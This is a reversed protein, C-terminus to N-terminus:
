GLVPKLTDPFARQPIGDLGRRYGEGDKVVEVLAGEDLKHPEHIVDGKCVLLDARRGAEIVGTDDQGIESAALGSAGFWATLPDLGDIVLNVIEMYNRGHMGPLVPDTGALIKLGGRHAAMVAETHVEATQLAKEMVADILGETSPLKRIVWSTPTVTCGKAAAKEVLAEDMFSIHQIDHVGNDIAFGIGEHSHAHAAVRLGRAKAEDCIAAIEEETFDRHELKDGPSAVGPSTCLKILDAGCAAIERVRKRCAWPGDVISPPRGPGGPWLKSVEEHCRDVGRFDAHGGTTSLMCIAVKLRPGIIVGEDVLRKILHTAGGVDRATTVGGNVLTTYLVKEVYVLEAPSSSREIDEPKLGLVTVHNHCDIMGPVVTYASADIRVADDGYSADPDHPHVAHITGGDVVVDVGAHMASDAAASGDYLRKVNSLIWM